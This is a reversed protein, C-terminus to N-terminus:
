QRSPENESVRGPMGAIPYRRSERGVRSTMSVMARKPNKKPRSVMNLVVIGWSMPIPISTM